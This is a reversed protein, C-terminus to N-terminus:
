NGKTEIVIVGNAGRSGYISTAGADKHVSISKVEYPSLSISGDPNPRMPTGDVVYLPTQDSNISNPGRILVKISGSRSSVHVGAVRGQLLDALDNATNQENETPTLTSSSTTSESKEQKGYGTNVMEEDESNSRATQSSSCGVLGICALGIIFALCIRNAFLM